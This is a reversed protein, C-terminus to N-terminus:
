GDPANLPNTATSIRLIPSNRHTEKPRPYHTESLQVIPMDLLPFVQALNISSMLSPTRSLLIINTRSLSCITCIPSPLHYLVVDISLFTDTLLLIRALGTTQTAEQHNVIGSHVRNPYLQDRSAVTLSTGLIGLFSM